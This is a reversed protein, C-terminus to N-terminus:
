TLGVYIWNDRPTGIPVFVVGANLIRGGIEYGYSNLLEVNGRAYAIRILGNTYVDDENYHAGTPELHLDLVFDTREDDPLSVPLRFGKM